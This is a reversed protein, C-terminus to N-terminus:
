HGRLDLDLWGRMARGCSSEITYVAYYDDGEVPASFRVSGFLAQDTQTRVVCTDLKGGTYPAYFRELAEASLESRLLLAGLYEMGNGTGSFREAASVSEVLVTDEPLPLAKLEREIHLAIANNAIPIVLAITLLLLGLLVMLLRIIRRCLMKTKPNM